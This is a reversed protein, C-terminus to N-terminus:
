KHIEKHCTDCLVTLNSQDTKGGDAHRKIHHGRAETLDIKNSCNACANGQKKLGANVEDRTFLRKPDRANPPVAGKGKPPKPIPDAKVEAQHTAGGNPNPPSSNSSGKSFINNLTNHTVAAGHAAVGVGV